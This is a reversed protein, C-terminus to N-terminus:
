EWKRSWLRLRLPVGCVESEEVGEMSEVGVEGVEVCEVCEVCESCVGNYVDVESFSCAWHPINM